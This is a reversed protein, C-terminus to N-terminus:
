EYREDLSENECEKGRHIQACGDLFRMMVLCVLEFRFVGDHEKRDKQLGNSLRVIQVKTKGCNASTNCSQGGTDANATNTTIGHLSDGALGFRGVVDTRIHDKCRSKHFTSGHEADYNAQECHYELCLRVRPM